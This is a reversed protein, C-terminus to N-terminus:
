AAALLPDPAFSPGSSSATGTFQHDVQTQGWSMGGNVAWLVFGGVLFAGVLGGIGWGAKHAFYLFLVGVGASAAVKLLNGFQTFQDTLTSVIGDALVHAGSAASFAVPDALAALLVSM